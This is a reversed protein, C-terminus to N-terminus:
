SNNRTMITVFNYQRSSTKNTFIYAGSGSDWTFTVFDSVTGYNTSGILFPTTGGGVIYTYVYGNTIDNILIMGSFSTFSVTDDTNLTLLNANSADFNINNNTTTPLTISGATSFTWTSSVNTTVKIGQSTVMSIVNTNSSGIYVGNLDRIATATAGFMPKIQGGSPLTLTGSIDFLWQSGSSAIAVSGSNVTQIKGFGGVSRALSFEGTNLVTATYIGNTLSPGVSRLVSQGDSNKIDGGIPLTLLGNKDFGWQHNGQNTVIYVGDGHSLYVEVSATSAWEDTYIDIDKNDTGAAATTIDVYGEPFRLGGPLYTLGNSSLSVVATSSTLQWSNHWTSTNINTVVSTWTLTSGSVPWALVKGNTGTTHPLTYYPGVINGLADLQLLKGNNSLSSSGQPLTATQGIWKVGDYVYTIGNDGTYQDGSQLPDGNERTLPFNLAMNKDKKLGL